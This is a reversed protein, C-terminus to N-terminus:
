HIRLEAVLVDLVCTDVTLAVEIEAFDDSSDEVFAELLELLFDDDLTLLELVLVEVVAM